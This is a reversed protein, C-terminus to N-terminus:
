WCICPNFFDKSCRTRREYQRHGSYPRKPDSRTAKSSPLTRFHDLNVTDAGKSALYANIFNEHTFEDETNDHIYQDM